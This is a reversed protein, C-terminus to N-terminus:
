TLIDLAMYTKYYMIHARAHSLTLADSHKDHCSRCYGSPENNQLGKIYNIDLSAMVCRLFGFEQRRFYPLDLAFM